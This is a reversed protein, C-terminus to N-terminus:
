EDTSEPLIWFARQNVLPFYPLLFIDTHIWKQHDTGNKSFHGVKVETFEVYHLLNVSGITTVTKYTTNLETIEDTDSIAYVPSAILMGLTLLLILKKM